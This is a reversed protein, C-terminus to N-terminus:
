IKEKEQFLILFERNELGTIHMMMALKAESLFFFNCGQEEM